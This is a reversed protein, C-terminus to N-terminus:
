SLSGIKEDNTKIGAFVYGNKNLIDIIEDKNDSILTNDDILMHTSTCVFVRKGINRFYEAEKFIESTKGGAGVFAKIM